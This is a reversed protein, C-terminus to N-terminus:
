AVVHEGFFALIRAWADEAAAEDYGAHMGTEIRAMWAPANDYSLFSHGAGEYMKVDHPVGLASLHAELRRGHAVFQRDRAGYSGVVPCVSELRSADKPVLGYNVSAAKVGGKAAFLLAFGGGLCFGAVALRSGDVEPRAALYRRADEIDDLTRREAGARMGSALVRTLCLARNGHGYLDPVLAAYGSAAFRDAIRRIDANLGFIEHLVVVGPGNADLDPLALYGPLAGGGALPISVSM